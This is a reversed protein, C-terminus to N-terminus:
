PCDWFYYDEIKDITLENTTVRTGVPARCELTLSTEDVRKIKGKYEMGDWMLSVDNQEEVAAKFGNMVLDDVVM